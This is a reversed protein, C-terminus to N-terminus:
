SDEEDDIENLVDQYTAGDVCKADLDAGGKYATWGSGTYQERMEEWGIEWDRYWVSKNGKPEPPRNM